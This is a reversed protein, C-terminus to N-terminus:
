NSQKTLMSIICVGFLVSFWLLIPLFNGKKAEGALYANFERRRKAKSPSSIGKHSGLPLSDGSVYLKAAALTSVPGFEHHGDATQISWGLSTKYILRGDSVAYIGARQKSVKVM